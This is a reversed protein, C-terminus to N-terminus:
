LVTDMYEAASHWSITDNLIGTVSLRATNTGADVTVVCHNAVTGISDSIETWQAATTVLTVNGGVLRRVTASVRGSVSNDLDPGASVATVIGHVLASITVIHGEAVVYESGTLVATAADVTDVSGGQWTVTSPTVTSGATLTGSVDLDGTITSNGAAIVGGATARLGIGGTVLGLTAAVNGTTAVVGTGGTVVTGATVAGLTVELDGKQVTVDEEVTLNGGTGANELVTLDGKSMTVDGRLVNIGVTSVTIGKQATILEEFTQAGAFDLDGNITVDEFEHPTTTTIKEANKFNLTVVRKTTM